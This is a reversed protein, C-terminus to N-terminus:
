REVYMTYIGSFPTPQGKCKQSNSYQCCSRFEPNENEQLCEFHNTNTAGCGRSLFEAMLKHFGSCCNGVTTKAMLQMKLAVVSSLMVEDARGEGFSSPHGSNQGVDAENVIFKFPWSANMSYNRRAYLIDPSETTVIVSEYMMGGNRAAAKESELKVVTM